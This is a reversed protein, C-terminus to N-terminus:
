AHEDAGENQPVGRLKWVILTGDLGKELNDISASKESTAFEVDGRNAIVRLSGDVGLRDLFKKLKELGHGRRGSKHRSIQKRVAREIWHGDTWTALRTLIRQSKRRRITRPIGAGQDYFMFGISSDSHDAYGVLWWEKYLYPDMSSFKYAHEFVNDMCEVLAVHLRKRDQEDFAFEESFCELLSDALRATTKNHREIRVYTRPKHAAPLAPAKINLAEFFGIETLLESVDHSHPYIGTIRTRSGCYAECRQIEALLLLAVEPAMQELKSHDIVIRNFSGGLAASRLSAILDLAVGVEVASGFLVDPPFEIVKTGRAKGKLKIKPNPKPVHHKLSWGYPEYVKDKRAIKRAGRKKSLAIQRKRENPAQRGSNAM